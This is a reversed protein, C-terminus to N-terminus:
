EVTKMFDTYGKIVLLTLWIKQLFESNVSAQNIQKSLINCLQEKYINFKRFFNRLLRYYIIYLETVTHYGCKTKCRNGKKSCGFIINILM